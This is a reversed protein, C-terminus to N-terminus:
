VMVTKLCFTSRRSQTIIMQLKMLTMAVQKKVPNSKQSTIQIIHNSEVQDTSDTREKFIFWGKLTIKDKTKIEVDHHFLGREEPSRYGVPNDEMKQPVMQGFSPIYILKEQFFFLITLVFFLLIFGITFVKLLINFIQLNLLLEFM